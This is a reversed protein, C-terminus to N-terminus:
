PHQRFIDARLLLIKTQTPAKGLSSRFLALSKCDSTPCFSIFQHDSAITQRDKFNATLNPLKQPKRHLQRASRRGGFYHEHGIRKSSGLPLLPRGHVIFGKSTPRLLVAQVVCVVQLVAHMGWQPCLGRRATQSSAHAPSPRPLKPLCGM